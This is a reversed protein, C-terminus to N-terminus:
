AKFATGTQESLRVAAQVDAPRTTKPQIGYSRAKEYQDLNKDARKQATADKGKWEQMYATKLNKSRVCEGFTAHDKTRCSSSCNEGM